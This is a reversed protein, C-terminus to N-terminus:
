KQQEQKKAELEKELRVKEYKLPAISDNDYEYAKNQAVNGEYDDPHNPMKEAIHYTYTNKRSNVSHPNYTARSLGVLALDALATVALGGLIGLALKANKSASKPLQSIFSGGIGGLLLSLINPAPSQFFKWKKSPFIDEKKKERTKIEKDLDAIRKELNTIDQEQAQKQKEAKLKEEYMAKIQQEEQSGEGTVAKAIELVDEMAFGEKQANSAFDIVESKDLKGNYAESGKSDAKEATKRLAENKITSIELTM